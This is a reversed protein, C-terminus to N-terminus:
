KAPLRIVFRAGTTTADLTLDGGATRALRRALPLGLGAGDHGDEPDARYGPEFVQSSVAHSVGPGDDAVTIEVGNEGATYELTVQTTAYRRANDLLPTLIRELLPAPVGVTMAAGHVTIPPADPHESRARQALAELVERAQCQGPGVTSSRAETLLTRCIQRMREAADAIAQHSAQQEADSRPRATLWEAEACIRALPTRLEHSLEATLQKEHRLVAAQRELLTDLHGGVEALEAPRGHTGFRKTIGDESHRAASASMATVPRLARGVIMRALWYVCAPLLLALSISGALVARTTFTYSDLSVQTVVTGVQRGGHNLPLAFLRSGAVNEYRRGAGAMSDAARQLAATAHPREINTTGQYIWGTRDAVADNPTQRVTITGDAHATVTSAVATARTRLQQEIQHGLQGHLVLNFTAIPVAILIAAIALALLALRGRLTSPRHLRSANM